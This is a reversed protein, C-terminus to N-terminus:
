FGYLRAPNDALIKRRLAPDPAFRDLLDDVLAADNPMTRRYGLHPWDSVWIARDPAMELYRQAFPVVDDWGGDLASRRDGNGVSIYFNERKLLECIFTFSLQTRGLKADINGLHDIVVPLRLGALLDGLAPWEEGVAQIKVHWGLPAIQAILRHFVEPTPAENMRRWFNFRLGRMGAEHMDRLVRDDVPEHLHAIGRYGPAARLSDLLLRHDGGYLGPQVLVGHTMGLAQHMARLAALTATFPPMVPPEFPWTAHYPYRAPDGLVHAHCDWSGAPLAQRPASTDDRFIPFM